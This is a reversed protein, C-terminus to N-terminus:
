NVSGKSENKLYKKMCKIALIALAIGFGIEIIIKLLNIFLMISPLFSIM